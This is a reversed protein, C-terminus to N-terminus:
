VPKVDAAEKDLTADSEADASRLQRYKVALSEIAEAPFILRLVPSVEFRTTSNKLPSLVRTSQVRKIAAVLKRDFGAKDVNAVRDFMRLHALMDELDVVTREGQSEVLKQRLFLLLATDLLNLAATRLLTATALGEAEVQRVFGVSQERDLVLELFLENLRSRLLVEHRLVTTWLTPKKLGDVFPGKVLAVFAQRVALGLEGTDNGFLPKGFTDSDGPSADEDNGFSEADPPLDDDDELDPEFDTDNM